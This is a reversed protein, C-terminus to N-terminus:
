GLKFDSGSGPGEQKKWSAPLSETSHNGGLTHVSSLHDVFLGYEFVDRSVVHRDAHSARHTRFTGRMSVEVNQGFRAKRRRSKEYEIM